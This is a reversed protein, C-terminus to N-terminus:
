ALNYISEEKNINSIFLDTDFKKIDFGNNLLTNKSSNIVKYSNALEEINFKFEKNGFNIEVGTCMKINAIVKLVAKTKIIFNEKIKIKKGNFTVFPKYVFKEIYELGFGVTDGKSILFPLLFDENNYRFIGNFCDIGFSDDNGFNINNPDDKVDTFGINLRENLFPKRFNYTDLFVEFYFFNSNIIRFQEDKTYGVTFPINSNSPHPLVKESYIFSFYGMDIEKPIFKTDIGNFIYRNLINTENDSIISVIENKSSLHSTKMFRIRPYMSIFEVMINNFIIPKNISYVNKFVLVAIKRFLEKDSFFIKLLSDPNLFSIINYKWNM